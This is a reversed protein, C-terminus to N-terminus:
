KNSLKPEWTHEEMCSGYCLALYGAQRLVICPLGGATVCHLTARRGYCLALYDAQRLVLCPLGGAAAYASVLLRDVRLMM